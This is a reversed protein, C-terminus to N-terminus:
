FRFTFGAEGSFFQPIVVSSAAIFGKPQGFTSTRINNFYNGGFNARNTLNFAQFFFELHMRERFTFMKSFRTDLQFFPKGRAADYGSITCNGASLCQQVQTATYNATGLFNHPDSKLLVAQEATSSSGYGFYDVGQVPNYPRASALQLIPAFAIGWPFQVIGSLVWRHREDSPTPGFDHPALYNTVDSPASSYSAAAGEYALARSLVYSTNVTFHRTLRRRYAFNLGDYRSRGVSLSDTISGLVPLGAATFAASYVRPAGPLSPLKYNINVNKNERLSLVHVYDVEVVNADNISWSYGINEQETYPNHYNPDMIRATNATSLKTPPPPIAPIPDIGYQWQSLLKNTGPVLDANPSPAQGAKPASPNSLTLVNTFLTANASQIMFLPINEFIQGYYLGFGGRLIHKGTGTIDYAFGIRPSFDKTDDQPIGAYPSGVAKLALYGRALPQASAGNLNFDRDYRIGLNITLRRSAKWDDQFYVGFM